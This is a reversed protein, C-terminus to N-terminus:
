ISFATNSQHTAATHTGKVQNTPVPHPNYEFLIKIQKDLERSLYSPQEQSLDLASAGASSDM